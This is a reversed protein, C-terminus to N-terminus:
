QTKVLIQHRQKTKEPSQITKQPKTYDESTDGGWDIGGWPGVAATTAWPTAPAGGGLGRPLRGEGLIFLLLLGMMGITFM